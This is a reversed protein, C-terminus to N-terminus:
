RYSEDNRAIKSEKEVYNGGLGQKRLYIALKKRTRFLSSRVASEQMHVKKAIEAM